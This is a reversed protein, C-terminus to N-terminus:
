YVNRAKKSFDSDKKLHAATKLTLEAYSTWSENKQFSNSDSSQLDIRLIHSSGCIM